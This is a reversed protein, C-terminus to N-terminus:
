ARTAARAQPLLATFAPLRGGSFQCAHGVGAAEAAALDSPMDGLLLSARLDIGLESAAALLMGPAPKRCDCECRLEGEGATPHHPCYYTALLPAEERRFRDHMWATFDLFERTTYYGRAIGAQNTVVVLLHGAATAERALQFIGDVWAVDAAAHVYGRDVNVVGDRDLFLARRVGPRAALLAAAGPDLYRAVPNM